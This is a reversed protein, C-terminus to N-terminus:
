ESSTDADFIALARHQPGDHEVFAVICTASAFTLWHPVKDQALIFLERGTPLHWLRITQDAGLTALTKGDPSIALDRVPGRHGM